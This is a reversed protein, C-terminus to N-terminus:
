MSTDYTSGNYDAIPILDTVEISASKATLQSIKKTAM